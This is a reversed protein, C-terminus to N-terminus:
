KAFFVMRHIHICIMYDVDRHLYFSSIYNYISVKLKQADHRFVLCNDKGECLSQKLHKGFLQWLERTLGGTDQGAEGTFYTKM